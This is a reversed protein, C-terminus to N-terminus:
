IDIKAKAAPRCEARRLTYGPHTQLWEAAITQAAHSCNVPLAANVEDSLPWQPTICQTASMQLCFVITLIM